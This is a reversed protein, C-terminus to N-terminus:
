RGPYVKELQALLDEQSGLLPEAAVSPIAGGVISVNQEAPLLRKLRAIEQEREALQRRLDNVLAVLEGVSLSAPDIEHKMPRKEDHLSAAKLM